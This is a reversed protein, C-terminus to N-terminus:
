RALQWKLWNWAATLLLLLPAAVDGPISPLISTTLPAWHLVLALSTTLVPLAQNLWRQRARQDCVTRNVSTRDDCQPWNLARFWGCLSVGCFLLVILTEAGCRDLLASGELDSSIFTCLCLRRYVGVTWTITWWWRLVCCLVNLEKILFLYSSSSLVGTSVSIIQVVM